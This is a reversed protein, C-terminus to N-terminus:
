FKNYIKKLRNIDKIDFKLKKSFFNDYNSNYFRFETFEYLGFYKESLLFDNYLTNYLFKYRINDRYKIFIKYLRLRLEIDDSDIANLIIKFKSEINDYLKYDITMFKLIKNLLKNYAIKDKELWHENRVFIQYYYPNLVNFRLMDVFSLKNDIIFKIYDNNLFYEDIGYIFHGNNIYKSIYKKDIKQENQMYYTYKINSDLNNLFNIIVNQNVQKLCIIEQPKIYDLIIGQYVHNFQEKNKFMRGANSFKLLYLDNIKYDVTKFIDFYKRFAFDDIDSLIIKNADNNPFDFMPFFRIITGFLGQHHDNDIKYKPCDYLVIELKYLKDLKNMIDKDKYISNDIFLRISYSRVYKIVNHYMSELGTIYRSFDKYYNDNLQRKFFCCTILNKRINYDIKFLPTFNCIPNDLYKM